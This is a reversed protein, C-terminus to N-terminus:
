AARGRGSRTPKSRPWWRGRLPVDLSLCAGRDPATDLRLTGGLDAARRRLSALGVGPTIAAPDFGCGDDCVRLALTRQTLRWRVEVRTPSEHRVANHLAEKVFLLVNQRVEPPLPPPRDPAEGGLDPEIGRPALLAVATDKLRLELDEWASEDPRIAWVVDHMSESLTRAQAGVHEAWEAVRGDDEGLAGDGGTETARRILESYLSVQTLGGGMEDHLDSAIRERLADTARRRGERVRHVGVLAGAAALGVLLAFPWTRWFPADASLTLRTAPGPAQGPRVARVDLAHRGAPVSALALQRGAGLSTWADREDLRYEVRVRESRRYTRAWIGFVLDDGERLRYSPGLGVARGNVQARAIRVGPSPSPDALARWDLRHVFGPRLTVWLFGDSDEALAGVTEGLLGDRAGIEVFPDITPAGPRVRLGQVGRLTGVWLRRGDPSLSVTVNRSLLGDDPGFVRHGWTGDAREWLVALGPLGGVWVRGQTDAALTSWTPSENLADLADRLSPPLCAPCASGLTDGWVVDLRGPDGGIWLRGRSDEAGLAGRLFTPGLRQRRGDRLRWLGAEDTEYRGGRGAHVLLPRARVTGRSSRARSESAAHNGRM